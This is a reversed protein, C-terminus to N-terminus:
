DLAYLWHDEVAVYWHHEIFLPTSRLRGDFPVTKEIKGTQQNLLYLNGDLGAYLLGAESLAPAGGIPVKLRDLRRFEGTTTNIKYLAGGSNAWFADTGTVLPAQRVQAGTEIRWRITRTAPDVAVMEGSFTGAYLRDQRFAMVMVPSRVDVSWRKEGDALHYAAIRGQDNGLFLTSDHLVPTTFVRGPTRVDWVVTGSDVALATLLGNVQTFICLNGSVLPSTSYTGGRVRWVEKGTTNDYRVVNKERETETWYFNHQQYAFGTIPGKGSIRDVEKNAQHDFILIEGKASLWASHVSDLVVPEGKTMANLRFQDLKRGDFPPAQHPAYTDPGLKVTSGCALLALPFLILLHRMRTM